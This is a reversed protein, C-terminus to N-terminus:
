AFNDISSRSDTNDGLLIISVQPDNSRFQNITKSQKPKQHTCDIRINYLVTSKRIIIKTDTDM